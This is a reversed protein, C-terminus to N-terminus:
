AGEGDDRLNCLQCEDRPPGSYYLRYCRHAWQDWYEGTDHFKGVNADLTLFDDNAVIRCYSIRRFIQTLLGFLRVEDDCTGAERVLEALREPEDLRPTPMVYADRSTTTM